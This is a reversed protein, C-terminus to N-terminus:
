RGTYISLRNGSDWSATAKPSSWIRYIILDGEAQARKSRAKAPDLGVAKAASQWTRIKGSKFTFFINSVPAIENKPTNRDGMVEIEVGNLKYTKTFRDPATLPKGFLRDITEMNQVRIKSYLPLKPVQAISSPASVLVILVLLGTKWYSSKLM